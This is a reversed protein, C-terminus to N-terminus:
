DWNDTSVLGSVPIRQQAQQRAESQQQLVMGDSVLSACKVKAQLLCFWALSINAFSSAILGEM